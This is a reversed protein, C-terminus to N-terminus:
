RCSPCAGGERARQLERLVVSQHRVCTRPHLYVAPTGSAFVQEHAAKVVFAHEHKSPSSAFTREDSREPPTM